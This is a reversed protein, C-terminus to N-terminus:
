GKHLRLGLRAGDDEHMVPAGIARLCDCRDGSNNVPKQSTAVRKGCDLIKQLIQSTPRPTNLRLSEPYVDQTPPGSQFILSLPQTGMSSRVVQMPSTGRRSAPPSMSWLVHAVSCDASSSTKSRPCHATRM